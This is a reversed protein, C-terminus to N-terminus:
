ILVLEDPIQLQKLAVFIKIEAPVLFDHRQGAPIKSHPHFRRRDIVARFVRMDLRKQRIDQLM